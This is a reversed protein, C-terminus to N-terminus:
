VDVRSIVKNQGKLRTTVEVIQEDEDQSDENDIEKMRQRMRETQEYYHNRRANWENFVDLLKRTEEANVQTSKLADTEQFAKAYDKINNSIEKVQNETLISKPRPRWKFLCFKEQKKMYLEKGQFNWIIYGNEMKHQYMSSSTVCYRGTVDWELNTMFQHTRTELSCPKRLDKNKAKIYKNNSDQILEGDVDLWELAGGSQSGSRFQALVLYRGTPCWHISNHNSTREIQPLEKIKNGIQPKFIRIYTKSILDNPGYYVAFRNGNPEWEYGGPQQKEFIKKPDNPDYSQIYQDCEVVDIPVDKEKIHFLEFSTMLATKRGKMPKSCRLALYTGQPHWKMELHKVKYLNKTRVIKLSPFERVVVKLPREGEEPVWYCVYNDNPSFLYAELGPVYINTKTKTQIDNIIKFDNHVDFIILNDKKMTGLYRGCSSWQFKEWVEACHTGVRMNLTKKPENTDALSWITIKAPNNSEIFHGQDNTDGSQVMIHKEDAAMSVNFTGPQQIKFDITFNGNTVSFIAIGRYSPDMVILYNGRPSWHVNPTGWDIGHGM